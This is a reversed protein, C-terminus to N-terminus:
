EADEVPVTDGTKKDINVIMIVDSQAGKLSSNRSDLGFLAVTWYGEEMKTKMEQSLEINEVEKANFDDPQAMKFKPQFYAYVAILALAVLVILGIAVGIITKKWKGGKRGGCVTRM